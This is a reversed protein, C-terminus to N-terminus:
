RPVSLREHLHDQAVQFSGHEDWVTPSNTLNVLPRDQHESRASGPGACRKSRDRGKLSRQPLNGTRETCGQLRSTRSTRSELAGTSDDFDAMTLEWCGAPFYVLYKGDVIQSWPRRATGHVRGTFGDATRSRRHLRDDPVMAPWGALCRINTWLGNQLQGEVLRQLRRPSATRITAREVAMFGSESPHWNPQM